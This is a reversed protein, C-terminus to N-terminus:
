AERVLELDAEAYDELDAIQANTVHYLMVNAVAVGHLTLTRKTIGQALQLTLLGAATLNVARITRHM